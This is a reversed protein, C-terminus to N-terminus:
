YLGMASKQALKTSGKGWAELPATIPAPRDTVINKLHGKTVNHDNLVHDVDKDDRAEV